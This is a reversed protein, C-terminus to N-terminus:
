RTSCAWRAGTTRPSCRRRSSATACCCRPPPSGPPSPTTGPCSGPARTWGAGGMAARYGRRRDAAITGRGGDVFVVDAHGLEALHEVAQGVGAADASRVVDAVLPQLRRGLVVTPVSAALQALRASPAEPGLLVLAESRFDLLTEVARAEGRVRTVPSLVLDYGADQAAVDLEEVLEAHFSSHPDVLVGLLGSRRRALSSATRDPRYGLEAAAAHVRTRTQESPGPEGRLVLSVTGASVGARAAVDSLRPRRAGGTRDPPADTRDM